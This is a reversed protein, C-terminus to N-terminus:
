WPLGLIQRPIFGLPTLFILYLLIFTVLLGYVIKVKHKGWLGQHVANLHECSRKYRAFMWPLQDAFEGVTGGEAFYPVISRHIPAGDKVTLPEPTNWNFLFDVIPAVGSIKASNEYWLERWHYDSTVWEINGTRANVWVDAREWDEHPLPITWELKWFWVYRYVWYSDAELWANIGEALNEAPHLHHRIKEDVSEWKRWRNRKRDWYEPEPFHAWHDSKPDYYPNLERRTSYFYLSATHIKPPRGFHKAFFNFRRTFSHTPRTWLEIARPNVINRLAIPKTRRGPAKIMLDCREGGRPIITVEHPIITKGFARSYKSKGGMRDLLRMEYENAPTDKTGGRWDQRYMGHEYRQSWYDRFLHARPPKHTVPGDRPDRAFSTRVLDIVGFRQSVEFGTVKIAKADKIKPLNLTKSLAPDQYAGFLEDDLDKHFKSPEVQRHMQALIRRIGFFTSGPKKFAYLAEVWEGRGKGTQIYYDTVLLRPEWTKPDIFVDIRHNTWGKIYPAGPAPADESPEFCYWLRYVWYEGDYHADGIFVSGFFVEQFTVGNRLRPIELEEATMLRPISRIELFEYGRGIPGPMPVFLEIRSKVEFLGGKRREKEGFFKLTFRPPTTKLFKTKEVAAQGRTIVPTLTEPNVYDKPEYEPAFRPVYTPLHAGKGFVISFDEYWEEGIETAWNTEATLTKPRSIVKFFVSHVAIPEEEGEKYIGFDIPFVYGPIINGERAAKTFVTFFAPITLDDVSPPKEGKEIKESTAGELAGISVGQHDGSWMVALWPKEGEEPLEEQAEIMAELSEVSPPPPTRPPGFADVPRTDPDLLGSGLYFHKMSVEGEEKAAQERAPGPPLYHPLVSLPRITLKGYDKNSINIVALKVPTEAEFYVVTEPEFTPYIGIAFESELADSVEDRLGRLVELVETKLEKPVGGSQALHLAERTYDIARLFVQLTWNDMGAEDALFQVTELIDTIAQTPGTTEAYLTYFGTLEDCIDLIDELREQTPRTGGEEDGVQALLRERIDKLCYIADRYRYLLEFANKAKRLEEKGETMNGEAFHALGAFRRCQAARRRLTDTDRHPVWSEVEEIETKEEDGRQWRFSQNYYDAAEVFDQSPAAGWLPQEEEKVEAKLGEVAQTPEGILVNELFALNQRLQGRCQMLLGAVWYLELSTFLNCVDEFQLEADFLIDLFQEDNNIGLLSYVDEQLKAKDEASIVYGKVGVSYVDSLLKLNIVHLGQGIGESLWRFITAVESTAKDGRKQSQVVVEGVQESLDYFKNSLNNSQRVQQMMGQLGKMAHGPDEVIRVQRYGIGEILQILADAAQRQLGVSKQKAKDVTLQETANTTVRLYAFAGGIYSSVVRTLDPFPKALEEKAIQEQLEAASFFRASPLPDAPLSSLHLALAENWMFVAGLPINMDPQKERETIAKMATKRFSPASTKLIEKDKESVSDPTVESLLSRIAYGRYLVQELDGLEQHSLYEQILASLPSLTPAELRQAQAMLGFSQAARKWEGAKGYMAGAADLAQVAQSKATSLALRAQKEQEAESRYVYDQPRVEETLFAEMERWYGAIAECDQATSRALEGEIKESAASKVRLMLENVRALLDNIQIGKNKPLHEAIEELLTKAEEFSTQLASLRSKHDLKVM